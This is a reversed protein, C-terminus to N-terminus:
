HRRRNAAAVNSAAIVEDRVSDKITQIAEEKRTEFAPRMYPQPPQNYVRGLSDAGVFGYEIRRAYPPDIGWPNEAEVVPTVAMVQRRDTDERHEIHISDRLLGTDIPVIAKAEQEFASAAEGVGAKLGFRAAEILYKVRLRLESFGTVTATLKM